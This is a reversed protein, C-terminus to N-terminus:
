LSETEGTRVNVVPLGRIADLRETSSLLTLNGLKDRSERVLSEVFAAEVTLVPFPCAGLQDNRVFFANTGASNTGVLSYGRKSVLHQFAALSAGFYLNSYHKATRYFRPDYPVTIAREVGFVANYEVILIRPSCDRIADLIWYDVGDIDLSLIGIDEGLRGEALLSNINDRDIFACIANLHHRWAIPSSRIRKVNEASGDIVLGRWNNHMLLFRCNSEQFDEVGFEVFAKNPIELHRILKQIIGDEGWQSFVKFEFDCLRESQRSSALQAMVAGQAFQLEDLRREVASLVQPPVAVRALFRHITATIREVPNSM